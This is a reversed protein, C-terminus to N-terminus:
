ARVWYMLGRLAPYMGQPKYVGCTTGTTLCNWAENISPIDQQGSGATLLYGLGVQDPRLHGGAILVDALATVFDVTGPQYLNGDAGLM